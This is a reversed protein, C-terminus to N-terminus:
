VCVLHISVSRRHVPGLLLTLCTTALLIAGPAATRCTDRPEPKFGGCAKFADATVWDELPTGGWKSSILVVPVKCGNADHIRKGFHWCLASFYGFESCTTLRNAAGSCNLLRGRDTRTM